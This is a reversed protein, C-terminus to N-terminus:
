SAGLSGEPLRSAGMLVVLSFSISDAVDFTLRLGASFGMGDPSCSALVEISSETLVNRMKSVRRLPSVPAMSLAIASAGEIDPVVM